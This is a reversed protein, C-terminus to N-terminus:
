RIWNCNIKVDKEKTNTTFFRILYKDPKPPVIRKRKYFMLCTHISTHMNRIIYKHM